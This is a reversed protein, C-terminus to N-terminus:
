NTLALSCSVMCYVNSTNRYEKIKSCHFCRFNLNSSRRGEIGILCLGALSRQVHKHSFFQLLTTLNLLMPYKVDEVLPEIKKAQLRM